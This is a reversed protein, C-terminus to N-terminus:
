HTFNLFTAVIAILRSVGLTNKLTNLEAKFQELRNSFDSLENKQTELQTRIESLETVFENGM